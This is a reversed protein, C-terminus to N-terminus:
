RAGRAGHQLVRLASSRALLSEDSARASLAEVNGRTVRVHRGGLVGELTKKAGKSSLRLSGHAATSGGIRLEMTQPTIKGSVTVGPVYSYRDFTVAENALRAWGARLGGTRLSTASVPAASRSSSSSDSRWNVTSTM